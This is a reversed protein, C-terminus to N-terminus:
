KILGKQKGDKRLDLNSEVAALLTVYNINCALDRHSDSDEYSAYSDALYGEVDINALNKITMCDYDCYPLEHKVTLDAGFFVNANTLAYLTPYEGWNNVKDMDDQTLRRAKGVYEILSFMLERRPTGYLEAGFMKNLLDLNVLRRNKLGMRELEMQHFKDNSVKISLERCVMQLKELARIVETNLITGNTIISIKNVIVGNRHIADAVDNLQKVAMFPEGGSLVLKEVEELNRFLNYITETSMFANQAEGRFCHKCDFNCYRTVEMILEEARIKEM